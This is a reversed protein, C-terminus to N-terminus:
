RESESAGPWHGEIHSCLAMRADLACRPNPRSLLWQIM